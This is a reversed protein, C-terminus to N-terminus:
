PRTIKRIYRHNNGLYPLKLVAPFKDIRFLKSGVLHQVILKCDSSVWAQIQKVGLKLIPAWPSLIGGLYFSHRICIWDKEIFSIINSFGWSIEFCSKFLMYTISYM